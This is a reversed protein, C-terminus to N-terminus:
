PAHDRAGLLNAVSAIVEEVSALKRIFTANACEDDFQERGSYVVYSIKKEGLLACLQDSDGDLVAAALDPDDALAFGGAAGRASLV